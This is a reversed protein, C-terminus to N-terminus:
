AMAGVFGGGAGPPAPAAGDPSNAYNILGEVGKSLVDFLNTERARVITTGSGGGRSRLVVFAVVALGGVLLIATTTNV